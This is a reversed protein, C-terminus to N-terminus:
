VHKDESEYAWKLIKSGLVTWLRYDLYLGEKSLADVAFNPEKPEKM